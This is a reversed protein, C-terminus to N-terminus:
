CDINEDLDKVAVDRDFKAM